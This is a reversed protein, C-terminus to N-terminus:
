VPFPINGLYTWQQALPLQSAVLFEYDRNYREPLKAVFCGKTISYFTGASFLFGYHMTDGVTFLIHLDTPPKNYNVPYWTITTIM